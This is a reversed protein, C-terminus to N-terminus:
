TRDGKRKLPIYASPLRDKVSIWEAMTQGGNEANTNGWILKWRSCFGHQLTRLRYPRFHQKGGNDNTTMETQKEMKDM